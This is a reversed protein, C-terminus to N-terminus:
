AKNRCNPTKSNVKICTPKERSRKCIRKTAL